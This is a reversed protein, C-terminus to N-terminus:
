GCGTDLPQNQMQWKHLIKNPKLEKDLHPFDDRQKCVGKGSAPVYNSKNFNVNEINSIIQIFYPRSRNVIHQQLVALFSKTGM